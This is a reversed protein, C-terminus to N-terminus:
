KAPAQILINSAGGAPWCSFGVPPAVGKDALKDLMRQCSAVLVYPNNSLSGSLAANAKAEEAATKAKQEAIRTDALAVQYAKIREETAGDLRVISIIVNLIEIQSGVKTRLKDTVTEALKDHSFPTGTADADRVVKLPDYTAYVENLAANLERTVLSDRVNHFDKYDRYLDDASEHKIRWRVSNDVCATSSNAIRVTTCPTEKDTGTHSDTQIAADFETVSEWPAVVHLGNDVTGVPKGFSTVIGVNKTSVTVLMSFALLVAGIILAIAGGVGAITRSESDSTRSRGVFAVVSVIVLIIGAIFGIM